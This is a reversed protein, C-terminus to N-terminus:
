EQAFIANQESTNRRQQWRHTTYVQNIHSYKTALALPNKDTFWIFIVDNLLQKSSNITAYSIAETLGETPMAELLIGYFHDMHCCVTSSPTNFSSNIKDEQSLVLEDAM